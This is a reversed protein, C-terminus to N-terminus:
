GKGREKQCLKARSKGERQGPKEMIRRQREIKRNAEGSGVGM